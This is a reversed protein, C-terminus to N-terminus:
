TKTTDVFQKKAKEITWWDSFHDTKAKKAPPAM